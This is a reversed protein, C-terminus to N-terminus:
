SAFAGATRGLAVDMTKWNPHSKSWNAIQAHLSPTPEFSIVLGKFGIMRLEVAYQGLNAGVDLVCDVELRALLRKLFMREPWDHAASAPVIATGERYILRPFIRRSLASAVTMFEGQVSERSSRAGLSQRLNSVRCLMAPHPRPETGIRFLTMAACCFRPLTPLRHPASAKGIGIAPLM